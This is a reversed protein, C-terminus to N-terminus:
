VVFVNRLSACAKEYQAFEKDSDDRDTDMLVPDLRTKFTSRM